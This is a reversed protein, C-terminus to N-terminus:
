RKRIIQRYQEQASEPVLHWMSQQYPRWPTLTIPRNFMIENGKAMLVHGAHEEILLTEPWIFTRGDNYPDFYVGPPLMILSDGVGASGGRVIFRWGPAGMAETAEATREILPISAPLVAVAFGACLAQMFERRNM